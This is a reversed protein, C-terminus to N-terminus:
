IARKNRSYLKDQGTKDSSIVPGRSYGTIKNPLLAPLTINIKCELRAKVKTIIDMQQLIDIKFTRCLQHHLENDNTRTDENLPNANSARHHRYNDCNPFSLIKQDLDKM